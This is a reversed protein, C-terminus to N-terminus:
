RKITRGKWEYSGLAGSAATIILYPIHLIEALLFIDLKLDPLFLKKASTIVIFDAFIKILLIVGAIPLFKTESILGYFAIILFTLFFLYILNLRFVFLKNAYFLGKSAWRKRQQYFERITSAAHTFVISEQNLCFKVRYSTRQFIKQMLSEDDGSSFKLTGEYGNVQSYASKRYAINAGNCITPKGAGILGAGAAILGAFEIKQLKGFLNKTENLEVPGSVFGTQEDFCKMVSNLWDPSHICDADTTFIIEGKSKEIGYSIANKKHASSSNKESLTFVATEKKTIANKLKDSTDDTSSDDIFIIEYKDHPYNQNELSRLCSLVNESENRFPIIVSIHVLAKGNNTCPKLKKIGILIELLFYVYHGLLILAASILIINISM